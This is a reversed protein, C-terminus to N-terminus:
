VFSSDFFNLAFNGKWLLDHGYSNKKKREQIFGLEKTRLVYKLIM